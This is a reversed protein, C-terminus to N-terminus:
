TNVDQYYKVCRKQVKVATGKQITLLSNSEFSAGPKQETSQKMVDVIEEVSASPSESVVQIRDPESSLEQEKGDINM